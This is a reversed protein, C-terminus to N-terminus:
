LRLDLQASRNLEMNQERIQEISLRLDSDLYTRISKAIALGLLPPVANGVQYYQKAESGTFKFWDPFSQLRAGERVTIRRRKGSEMRIRHMDGTAGALNRCTVTRSPKDLHLDRPNICKSAKEYRAIYQDMSPTLWKSDLCSQTALEMLGEGATIRKSLKKPFSFEGRHGIVIVRERNQPVGHNVANLLRYEVIYDLEQLEGKIKDFYWKNRYLLGRVNEFMWLEPRLSKVAQLFIPICNRSDKIGKQNGGVSFPQCPPGGVVVDVDPYISDVTLETQHCEGQLNLNYTKCCDSDKEYGITSIGAAELGLSLGGCGAFLDISSYDYARKRPSFAENIVQAYNFTVSTQM